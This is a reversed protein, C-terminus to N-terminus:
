IAMNSTATKGQDVSARRTMTTTGGSRRGGGGGTNMHSMYDDRMEIDTMRASGVSSVSASRERAGGGGATRMRDVSPSRGYLWLMEDTTTTAAAAAAPIDSGTHHHQSSSALLAAATPHLSQAMTTTGLTQHISIHHHHLHPPHPAPIGAAELRLELVKYAATLQQLQRQLRNVLAEEEQEMANELNVKEQGLRVVAAELDAVQRQLESQKKQLFTKDDSLKSLKRTLKNSIHEQEAELANELQAKEHSLQTLRRQLSSLYDTEHELQSTLASKERKLEDLRRLFHNTIHEEDIEVQKQQLYLTINPFSTPPCSPPHSFRSLSLFLPAVVPSLSALPGFSVM